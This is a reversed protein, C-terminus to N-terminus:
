IADKGEMSWYFETLKEVEKEWNYMKKIANEGNKGYEKAKKVNVLLQNIAKAIQISDEPDVCIGCQNKEVIERWVPFDSTVVPLGAAMYEFLKIPYSYYHNPTNLLTCCGICSHAYLEVVEKREIYGLFSVKDAGELRLLRNKYEEAIQGAILLHANIYVMAKILQEIGREKSIGGVYCIYPVKMKQNEQLLEVIKDRGGGM